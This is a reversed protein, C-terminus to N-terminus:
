NTYSWRIFISFGIVVCNIVLLMGIITITIDGAQGLMIFNVGIILMITLPIFIKDNNNM